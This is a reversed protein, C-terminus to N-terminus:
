PAGGGPAGGAGPVQGGDPAGGGSPVGGGAAGPVGGPGGPMGGGVGGASGPTGGGAVGGAGGPMQVAAGVSELGGPPPKGPGTDIYIVNGRPDAGAGITTPPSVTGPIPATSGADGCGVAWGLAITASLTMFSNCVIEANTRM